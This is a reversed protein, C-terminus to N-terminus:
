SRDNFFTLWPQTDGRSTSTFRLLPPNPEALLVYGVLLALVIAAARSPSATAVRCLGYVFLLFIALHQGSISLLHAVGARVM